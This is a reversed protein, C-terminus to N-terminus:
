PRLRKIVKAPSGAILCNGSKFSKTVVSGAGVITNDGLTVGPLIVTNMGIWCGNGIVVDEGPLNVSLMKPDHNSTIIGVNPAILSGKGLFIQSQFNQFYCGPSQLNDLDNPHFHLNKYNSVKSFPSMPWPSFRNFGLIKQFWVAKLAWLWGGCGEDFYKGVLYRRDFFMGFAVRLFFTTPLTM